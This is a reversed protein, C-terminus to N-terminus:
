WTLWTVGTRSWTPDEEAIERTNTLNVVQRDEAVCHLHGVAEDGDYDSPLRDVEWGAVMGPATQRQDSVTLQMPWGVEAPVLWLNNRGSLNSVFVITKGDPSWDRGVQRTM